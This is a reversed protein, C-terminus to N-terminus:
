IRYVQFLARLTGPSWHPEEWVPAVHHAGSANTSGVGGVATALDQDVREFPDGSRAVISQGIRCNEPHESTSGHTQMAPTDGGSAHPATGHHASGGAPLPAAVAEAAMLLDHSLFSAVLLVGLLPWQCFRNRQRGRSWIM